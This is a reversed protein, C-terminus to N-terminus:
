VLLWLLMDSSPAVNGYGPAKTPGASAQRLYSMGKDVKLKNGIESYDDGRNNICVFVLIFPTISYVSRISM